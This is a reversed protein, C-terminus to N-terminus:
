ERKEDGLDGELGGNKFCEPSLGEGYAVRRRKGSIGEDVEEFVQDEEIDFIDNESSTKKGNPTNNEAKRPRKLSGNTPSDGNLKPKTNIPYKPINVKDERTVRKAEHNSQPGNRLDPFKPPPKSIDKIRDWAEPSFPRRVRSESEGKSDKTKESEPTPLWLTIAQGPGGAKSVRPTTKRRKSKKIDPRKSDWTINQTCLAAISMINRKDKTRLPSKSKIRHKRREDESNPPPALPMKEPSLVPQNLVTPKTQRYLMRILTHPSPKYPFEIPTEKKIPRLDPRPSPRKGEGKVSFDSLIPTRRDRPKWDQVARNYVKDFEEKLTPNTFWEHMLAQEATMRKDEDLILLQRVFKKAREGVNMWDEDVELKELDCEHALKQSYINTIPNTFPSGGTLLVVAVCGLSWLDM